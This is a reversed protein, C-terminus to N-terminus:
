RQRRCCRQRFGLAVDIAEANTPATVTVHGMKRGPKAQKKGYLHTAIRCNPHVAGLEAAAQEFAPDGNTWLDGLLNAMAVPSSQLSESVAQGSVALAQLDYQSLSFGEITLHGSNHPRPAIENVLLQGDATLFYEVCVVGVLQFRAALQLAYERAQRALEAPLDTDVYSLDLIHNRHHNKIPGITTQGGFRDGAVIVSVEAQLDVRRELTCRNPEAAAWAERSDTRDDLAWQGKGDYGETATKLIFDGGGLERRAAQLQESSEVAAFPALPVGAEQLLRKERLRDQTSHIVHLGPAMPSLSAVHRLTDPPINEFEYTAVAASKGFREILPAEDFPGIVLEDAFQAAPDEDSATFCCVRFGHQQAAQTFFMGLQGGGLVGLTAGCPLTEDLRPLPHVDM